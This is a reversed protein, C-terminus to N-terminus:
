GLPIKQSPYKGHPYDGPPPTFSLVVQIIYARGLILRIHKESALYYHFIGFYSLVYCKLFLNPSYIQVNPPPIYTYRTQMGLTNPLIIRCIIYYLNNELKVSDLHKVELGRIHLYIAWILYKGDIRDIM